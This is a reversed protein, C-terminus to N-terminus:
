GDYKDKKNKKIVFDVTLYVIISLLFLVLIKIFPSGKMLYKVSVYISGGIVISAFIIRFIKKSRIDM